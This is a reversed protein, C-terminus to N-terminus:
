ATKKWGFRGHAVDYPINHFRDALHGLRIREARSLEGDSWLAERLEVLGYHVRLLAQKEEETM